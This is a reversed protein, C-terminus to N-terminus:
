VFDRNNIDYALIVIAFAFLITSPAVIAPGLVVEPIHMNRHDRIQM